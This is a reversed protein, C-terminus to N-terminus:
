GEGTRWSRKFAIKKTKDEKPKDSVARFGMSSCSFGSPLPKRVLARWGWCNVNNSAELIETVKASFWIPKSASEVKLNWTSGRFAPGPHRSITLREKIIKLRTEDARKTHKIGQKNASFIKKLWYQDHLELSLYAPRVKCQTPQIDYMSYLEVVYM